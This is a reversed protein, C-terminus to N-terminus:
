EDDSSSTSTNSDTAELTLKVTTTKLKGDHYYKIEVSDGVSHSYLAERLTAIGTVEKVGLSVIVDYKEIGSGKLPSDSNISAVVIGSTVSSPIKLVSSRQSEPVSTM